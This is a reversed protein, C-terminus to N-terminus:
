ECSVYEMGIDSDMIHAYTKGAYEMAPMGDCSCMEFKRGYRPNMNSYRESSRDIARQVENRKARLCTAAMNVAKKTEIKTKEPPKTTCMLSSLKMVCHIRHTYM